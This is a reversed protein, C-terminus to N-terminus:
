ATELHKWCRRKSVAQSGHVWRKCILLGARKCKGARQVTITLRTSHTRDPNVTAGLVQHWNTGPQGGAEALGVGCKCACAVLTISSDVRLLVVGLQWQVRKKVASLNVPRPTMHTVTIIPPRSPDFKYRNLIEVQFHATWDEYSSPPLDAKRAVLRAHTFPGTEYEYIETDRRCWIVPLVDVHHQAYGATQVNTNM